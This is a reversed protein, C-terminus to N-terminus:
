STAPKSLIRKSNILGMFTTFLAACSVAIFTAEITENLGPLGASSAMAGALIAGGLGMVVDQSAGYGKGEVSKGASWGVVWGVFIWLPLNMSEGQFFAM